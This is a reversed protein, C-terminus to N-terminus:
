KLSLRFNDIKAGVPLLAGSGEIALGQAGSSMDLTAPVNASSYDITITAWKDKGVIEQNSINGIWYWGDCFVVQA